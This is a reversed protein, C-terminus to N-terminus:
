RMVCRGVRGTWRCSRRPRPVSAWARIDSRSFMGTGMMESLVKVTGSWWVGSDQEAWGPHPHITEHETTSEAILRGAMDIVVAKVNTTGVDIGVLLDSM